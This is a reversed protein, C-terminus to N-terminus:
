KAYSSRAATASHPVALKKYVQKAAFQFPMAFTMEAICALEDGQTWNPNKEAFFRIQPVEAQLKEDIPAVGGALKCASPNDHFRIIGKTPEYRSFFKDGYFKDMLNKEFIPTSFCHNPYYNKFNKAMLLYTKYGKSILFWYVPTFPNRIKLFFLYSLFAIGLVPSGWHKRILLTDGSFVGVVSTGSAIVRRAVLTSFGCISGSQSDTLLIITDKEDLDSNFVSWQVGEYYESFLNFMQKRTKLSLLTAKKFSAKLNM